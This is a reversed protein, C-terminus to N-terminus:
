QGTKPNSRWSDFFYSLRIHKKLAPSSFLHSSYYILTHGAAYLLPLLYIYTNLFYQTTKYIKKYGYRIRAASLNLLSKLIKGM